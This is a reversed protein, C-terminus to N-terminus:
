YADLMNGEKMVSDRPKGEYYRVVKGDVNAYQQCDESDGWETVLMCLQGDDKIVYTGSLDKGDWRILISGDEAYYGAGKSYEETNGTVYESVAAQSM